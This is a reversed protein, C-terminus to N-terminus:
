DCCLNTYGHDKGTAYQIRAEAKHEPGILHYMFSLTINIESIQKTLALFTNLKYGEVKRHFKFVLQITLKNRLDKLHPGANIEIKCDIHGHSRQLCLV